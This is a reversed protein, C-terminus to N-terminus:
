ADASSELHFNVIDGPDTRMFDQRILDAFASDGVARVQLVAPQRNQQELVGYILIYRCAFNGCCSNDLVAYGVGYVIKQRAVQRTALCEIRYWGNVLEVTHGVRHPLPINAM